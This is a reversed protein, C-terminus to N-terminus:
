LLSKIGENLTTLCQFGLKEQALSINAFSHMVEGSRFPHFEPTLHFNFEKSIVNLLELLTIQEGTGINFTRYSKVVESSAMAALINANVVDSVHVFDRSQKGTGYILPPKRERYCKIFRPIVASYASDARQKPGYVNFYRLCVTELGFSFYFSEALAEATLKSAAYPSM